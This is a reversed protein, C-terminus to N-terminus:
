DRMTCASIRWRLDVTGACVICRKSFFNLLFLFFHMLLSFRENSDSQINSVLVHLSSHRALKLLTAVVGQDFAEVGSAAVSAAKDSQQAFLIGDLCVCVTLLQENPMCYQAHLSQSGASRRSAATLKSAPTAPANVSSSASTPAHAVQAPPARRRRWRSIVLWVIAIFITTYMLRHARTPALWRWQAFLAASWTSM